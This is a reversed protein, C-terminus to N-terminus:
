KVTVTRSQSVLLGSAGKATLLFTTTKTPIYRGHLRIHPPSWELWQWYVGAHITPSERVLYLTGDTLELETANMVDFDIMCATDGCAPIESPTVTFTVIIADLAPPPPPPPPTTPSSCAALILLALIFIYKKM